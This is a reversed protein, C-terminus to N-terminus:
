EIWQKILTRNKDYLRYIPIDLYLAVQQIVYDWDIFQSFQTLLLNLENPYIERNNRYKCYEKLLDSADEFSLQRTTLFNNIKTRM